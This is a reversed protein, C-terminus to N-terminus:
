RNDKLLACDESWGSDLECQYISYTRCPDCVSKRIEALTPNHIPLGRSRRKEAMLADRLAMSAPGADGVKELHTRVGHLPM